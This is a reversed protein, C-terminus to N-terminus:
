SRRVVDWPSDGGWISLTSGNGALSRLESSRYFGNTFVFHIALPNIAIASTHTAMSMRPSVTRKEVFLAVENVNGKNVTPVLVKVLTM